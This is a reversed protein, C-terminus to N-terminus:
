GFLNQATVGDGPAVKSKDDLLGFSLEGHTSAFLIREAEDQDVALTFLTRPLTEVTQEGTPTTTTTSAVTSQAVAIVQVEPLLLRTFDESTKGREATGTLFIAVRSGPSVFGAVRGTDSLNVSVAFKGAPVTLNEQEGPTGFKSATIQENPYIRTVAVLSGSEGITAMAGDLQQEAPVDQLEIKGAESAATLTEGPEIQAVAKLVTVPAQAQKARDDAGQVYLYVLGAGAVAIVAAVILLVTRRGM